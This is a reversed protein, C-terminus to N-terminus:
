VGRKGGALGCVRGSLSIGGAKELLAVHSNGFVQTRSLWTTPHDKEVAPTSTALEKGDNTSLTPLAWARRELSPKVAAPTQTSLRHLAMESTLEAM